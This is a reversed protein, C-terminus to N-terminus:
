PGVKNAIDSYREPFLRSLRESRVADRGVMIKRRGQEIGDLIIVAAQEPPLGYAKFAETFREQEEESLTAGVVNGADRANRVIDTGVHGPFITAVAVNSPKLEQALVETFGRIAYKSACYAGQRIKPYLGFVSSVNAILAEPRAKLITLFEKSGYVMGMFNVSMVRELQEYSTDKIKGSFTVGANNIIGDVTEHEALVADRFAKWQELSSVDLEHVSSQADVHRVEAGLAETELAGQLDRDAIAVSAGRKLAEIVLARGIGSAGGTILLTKSAVNM